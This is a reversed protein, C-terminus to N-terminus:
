QAQRRQSFHDSGISYAELAANATKEWTFHAARNPGRKALSSRMNEDLCVQDIATAMTERDRCDFVLAADGVVEPLSGTCAVAVPCGVTMAELPPFGFGEDLSPCVLARATAYHAWLIGDSGSTCGTHRALGCSELLGQEEATLRGGGFLVLGVGEQMARSRAFARCFAPFNKHGGRSGVFLLFPPAAQLRTLAEDDPEVARVGAYGIVIRDEDLDYLELLRTRTASSPVLIADARATNHRKWEATRDRPGFFSPFDEHIMDYVTVVVPAQARPSRLGYYSRHIVL